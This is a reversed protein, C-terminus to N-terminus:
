PLRNRKFVEGTQKNFPTGDPSFTNPQNSKPKLLNWINAASAAAGVGQGVQGVMPGIANVWPMWSKNKEYFDTDIKNKKLNLDKQQNEIKQGKIAQDVAQAEKVSKVTSAQNASEQSKGTAIGQALAQRELPVSKASAITKGLDGVNSPTLAPMSGSPSSAGGGGASLIPNLGAARLDAVERQHATSSMREQFAMQERSAAQMNKNNKENLYVNAATSILSGGLSGLDFM